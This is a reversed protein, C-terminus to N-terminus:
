RDRARHHSVGHHAQRGPGDRRFLWQGAHRCLSRWAAACLYDALWFLHAAAAAMKGDFYKGADSCGDTKSCYIRGCKVESALFQDISFPFM